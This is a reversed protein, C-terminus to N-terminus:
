FFKYRARLYYTRGLPNTYTADYGVQFNQGTRSSPPDQDFLNKVGLVLELGKFGSWGGTIDVTQYADVQRDAPYDPGPTQTPDFYDRYGSTYNHTLSANWPGQAWVFTLAHRWRPIPQFDKYAGLDSVQVVGNYQYGHKTFYTGDLNASFNGIGTRM